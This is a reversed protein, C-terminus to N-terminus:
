RRNALFGQWRLWEDRCNEPVPITTPIALCASPSIGQAIRMARALVDFWARDVDSRGSLTALVVDPFEFRRLYRESVKSIPCPFIERQARAKTIPDSAQAAALYRAMLAPYTEAVVLWGIGSLLGTTFADDAISAPAQSEEVLARMAAGTAVANLWYGRYDFRSCAGKQYRTMMEAIFVVRRVFGTGLRTVAQPVSATKGARAFRAANASHILSASIVPDLQIAKAVQRSDGAAVAAEVRSFIIGPAPLSGHAEVATLFDLMSPTAEDFSPKETIASLLEIAAEGSAGADRIFADMSVGSACRRFEVTPSAPATRDAGVKTWNPVALNFRGFNDIVTWFAGSCAEGAQAAIWAIVAPALENIARGPDHRPDCSMIVVPPRNEAAPVFAVLVGTGPAVGGAAGVSLEFTSPNM